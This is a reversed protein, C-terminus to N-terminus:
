QEMNAHFGVPFGELLVGTLSSHQCRAPVRIKRGPAADPRAQSSPCTVRPPISSAPTPPPLHLPSGGLNTFSKPVLSTHHLPSLALLRPQLALGWNAPQPSTHPGRPQLPRGDSHLARDSTSLTLPTRGESWTSTRLSQSTLIFRM